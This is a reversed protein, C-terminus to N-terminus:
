GFVSLPSTVLMRGTGPSQRGDILQRSRGGGSRVLTDHSRPPDCDFVLRMICLGGNKASVFVEGAGFLLM